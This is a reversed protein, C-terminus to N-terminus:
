CDRLLFGTGAADLEAFVGTSKSAGNLANNIADVAGAADTVDSFDVDLTEASGGSPTYTFSYTADAIVATTEM